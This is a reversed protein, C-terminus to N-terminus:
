PGGFFSKLTPLTLIAFESDGSEMTFFTHVPFAALPSLLHWAFTLSNLLGAQVAWYVCLGWCGRGGSSRASGTSVSHARQM